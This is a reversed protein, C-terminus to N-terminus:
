RTSKFFPRYDYASKPLSALLADAGIEQLLDADIRERILAKVDTVESLAELLALPPCWNFGTAMVADAAAADAVEGSIVLSYLAYLLLLELCIEAEQSQNFVLAELAPIYDGVKVAARMKEAFPFSYSIIERYDDSAIDYVLHRKEGESLRETKYLGTGVKKGLKGDAILKKVYDPMRFCSHAYDCTNDYLNDVIAQHVDLGVFDCTRIPAINRGSFPGMIADIYDIGGYDKLEEAKQLSLNILMFGIRNALFAPADKVDVVTRYLVKELYHKLSVKVSPDSYKTSIFECLTMKYPPNFMHVGFFRARNAEPLLEALATISLGSTGSCVITEANLANAISTYVSKKADFDEKVSEFILDSKSICEQLQSYDTPHLNKLISDAHVSACTKLVAKKADELKRCVMHVEADGFSAFIAAVNSGMTGNAGIVTVTRIEKM